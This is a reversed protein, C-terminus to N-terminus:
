SSVMFRSIIGIAFQIYFHVHILYLCKSIISHYKMSDVEEEKM